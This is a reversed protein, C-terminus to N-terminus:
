IKEKKGYVVVFWKILVFLGIGIIDAVFDRFEGNRFGLYYQGVETLASYLVLCLALNFLPLKLLSSLVWTLCFFGIFHGISDIKTLQFVITRVDESLTVMVASLLIVLFFLLHHLYKMFEVSLILIPKIMVHHFPAIGDYKHPNKSREIYFKIENM